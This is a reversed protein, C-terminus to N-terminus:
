RRRGGLYATLVVENSTVDEVAGEAAKRGCEYQYPSIGGPEWATVSGSEIAFDAKRVIALEARVDAIPRAAYASPEESTAAYM